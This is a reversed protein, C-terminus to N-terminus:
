IDRKAYIRGSLMCSLWMLALGVIVPVVYMIVPIDSVTFPINRWSFEIDLLRSLLPLEIIGIFVIFLPILALIKAKSYGYKFYVPFQIAVLLSFVSSLLSLSFLTRAIDFKIEIFLTMVWSFLIALAICAAEATLAFLYRGKVVTRRNISLIAYLTDLGNKEGISFPYSMLLILVMMLYSSLTDTSKFFLGMVLALVFLILISTRYPKLSHFEMGVFSLTKRM